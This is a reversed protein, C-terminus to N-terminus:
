RGVPSYEPAGTVNRNITCVVPIGKGIAGFCGWCERCLVIEADRDQLIKSFAEPDAIMQRGIAAMDVLGDAVASRAETPGLKGVGIVPIGVAKRVEAIYPLAWGRAVDKELASKAMLHVVGDIEKWASSAVLSADICDVGAEELLGAVVVADAATQGEDIVETANLRFLVAFDPGVAERVGRVVELPLTARGAADGGYRDQRRNTVPSLFQSLLYMHAGHIEVGDFGAQRACVAAAIFAERIEAIEAEGLATPVTDPRFPVGSPSAGRIGEEVPVSRAGAHNLQVVAAAGEAKIAAALRAMGPIHSDNWLGLSLRGIRGDPRIATAEVIVLGATRSRFRYFGLTSETVEGEETGYFNTIPPLVLRNRVRLTNITIPDLLTPM